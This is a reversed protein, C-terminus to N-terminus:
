CFGASSWDFNQAFQPVDSTTLDSPNNCGELSQTGHSEMTDDWGGLDLLDSYYNEVCLPLGSLDYAFVDEMIPAEGLPPSASEMMEPVHNVYNANTSNQSVTDAEEVPTSPQAEHTDERLGAEIISMFDVDEDDVQECPMDGRSPTEPSGRKQRRQKSAGTHVLHRQHGEGVLRMQFQKHCSLCKFRPQAKSRNNYYKFPANDAVGCHRCQRHLGRLEEPDQNRKKEYTKGQPRRSHINWTFLKRCRCCQFRPQDLSRNDYYKFPSEEASVYNCHYCQKLQQQLAARLEEAILAMTEVEPLEAEETLAM